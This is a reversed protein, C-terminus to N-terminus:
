DPIQVAGCSLGWYRAVDPPEEDAHAVRIVSKAMGFLAISSLTPWRYVREVLDWQYESTYNSVSRSVIEAADKTKRCEIADGHRVSGSFLFMTPKGNEEVQRLERGDFVLFSTWTTSAGRGLTVIADACGDGNVDAIGILPSGSGPIGELALEHVAGTALTLRALIPRDAPATGVVRDFFELRDLRGDCDFDARTASLLQGVTTVAAPMSSPAITAAPAIAPEPAVWAIPAPTTRVPAPRAATSTACASLLATALVALVRGNVGSHDRM